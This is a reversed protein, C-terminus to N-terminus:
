RGSTNGARTEPVAVAIVEFQTTGSRVLPANERYGDTKLFAELGGADQWEVLTLRHPARTDPDLASFAPNVMQYIFRGGVASVTPAINTLYADYDDPRQPDIWASAMTYYRNSSFTLIVDERAPEDHIRLRDWGDPRTAKIPSWQPAKNFATEAETSPWAYLAVAKPEFEGAIVRTVNLSGFPRLGYQRALGFASRGYQARASAAAEGDRPVVSIVSFLEGETLSVELTTPPRPLEITGCGTTLLATCATATLTVFGARSPAINM